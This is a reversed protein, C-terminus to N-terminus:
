SPQKPQFLYLNNVRYITHKLVQDNRRIAGYLVDCKLIHFEGTHPSNSSAEWHSHKWYDLALHCLPSLNIRPAIYCWMKSFISYLLIFVLRLASILLVLPFSFTFACTRRGEGRSRQVTHRMDKVAYSVMCLSWAEWCAEPKGVYNGAPHLVAFPAAEKLRRHPM